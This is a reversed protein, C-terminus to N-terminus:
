STICYYYKEEGEEQKKKLMVTDTNGSRYIYTIDSCERLFWRGLTANDHRSHFLYHCPAEEFDYEQSTITSSASSVSRNRKGTGNM